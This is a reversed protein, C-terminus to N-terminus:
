TKFSFRALKTAWVTNMRPSQNWKTITAVLVGLNNNIIFNLTGQRYWLIRLFLTKLKHNRSKSYTPSKPATPNSSTLATTSQRSSTSVLMSVTWHSNCRKWRQHLIPSITLYARGRHKSKRKINRFRLSTKRFIWNRCISVKLLRSLLRM